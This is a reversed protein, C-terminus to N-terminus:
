ADDKRKIYYLSDNMKIGLGDVHVGDQTIRMMSIAELVWQPVASQPLNTQIRAGDPPLAFDVIDITGDDNISVRLVKQTLDPDAENGTALMQIQRHIGHSDYWHDTFRTDLEVLARVPNPNVRFVHEIADWSMMMPASM